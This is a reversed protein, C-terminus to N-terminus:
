LLEFLPNGNDLQLQVLIRKIRKKMDEIDMGDTYNININIRYIITNSSSKEECFNVYLRNNIRFIVKRIYKIDNLKNTSPFTIIPVKKKDFYTIINLPLLKFDCLRMMNVKTETVQDAEIKQILRLENKHHEVYDHQFYKGNKDSFAKLLSDFLAQDLAYKFCHTDSLTTGLHIEILNSGSKVADQFIDM